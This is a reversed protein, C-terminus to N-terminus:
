RQIQEIVFRSLWPLVPDVNGAECETISCTRDVLVEHHRQPREDAADDQGANQFVPLRYADYAAAARPVPPTLVISVDGVQGSARV